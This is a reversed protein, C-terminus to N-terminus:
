LCSDITTGSQSGYKPLKNEGKLQPHNNETSHKLQKTREGQQKQETNM